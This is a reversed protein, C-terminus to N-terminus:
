RGRGWRVEPPITSPGVHQDLWRSLPELHAWTRAVFKLAARKTLRPDDAPLLAGAVLTTHKLLVARPHDKAYGRPMGALAAGAVTLQRRGLGAVVKALNDGAPAAAVAARFRPLQDPAMDYYGGGAYLGQSSLEAYLGAASGPRDLLVGYTTIKYPSKDKAFRVDRNQRFLKPRGGLEEALEGLLVELPRKVQEEWIGRHVEFYAKSNDEELGQFFEIARPGFGGFKVVERPSTSGMHCM